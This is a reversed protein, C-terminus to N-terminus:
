KSPDFDWKSCRDQLWEVAGATRRWYNLHDSAYLVAEREDGIGMVAPLHNPIRAKGLLYGPVHSNQELAEQKRGMQWLMGALGERARMYPRTEFLGWFYGQNDRFYEEGL